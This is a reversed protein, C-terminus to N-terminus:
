HLQPSRVQRCSAVGHWASSLFVAPCAATMVPTRNFVATLMISKFWQSNICRVVSNAFTNNHIVAGVVGAVGALTHVMCQGYQGCRGYVPVAYMAM